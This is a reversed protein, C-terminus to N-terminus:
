RASTRATSLRSLDIIRYSEYYLVALGVSAVLGLILYVARENYFPRTALNTRLM